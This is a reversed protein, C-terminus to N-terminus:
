KRVATWVQQHAHAWEDVIQRVEDYQPEDPLVVGLPDSLTWQDWDTGAEAVDVWAESVEGFEIQITVPLGITVWYTAQQQNGERHKM